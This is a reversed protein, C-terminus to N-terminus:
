DSVDHCFTKLSAEEDDYMRVRSSLSGGDLFTARPVDVAMGGVGFEKESFALKRRMRSSTM